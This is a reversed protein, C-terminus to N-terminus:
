QRTPMISLPGSTGTIEAQAFTVMLNSFFQSFHPDQAMINGYALIAVALVVLKKMWLVTLNTLNRIKVM